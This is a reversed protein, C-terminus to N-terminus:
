EKATISTIAKLLQEIQRDKEECQKSLISILTATDESTLQAQSSYEQRAHNHMVMSNASGNNVISNHGVVSSVGQGILEEMEGQGTLLWRSSMLPFKMAIKSLIEGGFESGASKSSFSSTSIGTKEFFVRHTIGKYKLYKHVRGKIPPFNLRLDEQM